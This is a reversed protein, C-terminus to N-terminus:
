RRLFHPLRARPTPVSITTPGVVVTGDDAHWSGPPIVVTRSTAGKELQPAVLLFDGMLFQDKVTAYGHGPFEYELHRLMPEGTQACAKALEVFRPAFRQRLAVTERVIRQDEANLVRWPSASFQMMGCLAQMQCSRVFLEADFASGPLFAVWQGGGIMDPCLFSYGLLGGALLDTVCKRLDAWTHGKDNLREVLPQGALGFANRFECIPYDLCVRGYAQAQLGSSVDAFARYGRTYFILHGGDMKFGDVGYDAILRDCEGKFWRRGNPHTFDVLASKGNWWRVAAPRDMPNEAEAEDGLLFGGTMKERVVSKPNIGTTLLRYAPTDMGVFPCMWLLVKFGMRHLKEVMGKPDAFRGPEFRWDGYGAQWTDDIMLIGPPLGNDLMSQAYALIDRENQGYTLEIWTCYQPAAFFALDPTQGSPPFHARSAARFAERLTAGAEVLAIPAGDSVLTLAGDRITVTTQADCWVYRGRDSVLFSQYQNAYGDTRIDIVADTQADFPMREGWWTAAGWWHEGPLMRVTRTRTEGHPCTEPDAFLPGLALTALLSAAVKM